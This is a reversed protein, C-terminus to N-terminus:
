EEFLAERKQKIQKIMILFFFFFETYKKRWVSTIRSIESFTHLRKYKLTKFEFLRTQKNVLDLFWCLGKMRGLLFWFSCDNQTSAM